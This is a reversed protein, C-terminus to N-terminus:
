RYTNRAFGINSSVLTPNVTVGTVIPEMKFTGIKKEDVVLLQKMTLLRSNTMIAEDSLKGEKNKKFWDSKNQDTFESIIGGETKGSRSSGM